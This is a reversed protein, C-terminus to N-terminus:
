HRARLVLLGAVIVLATGVAAGWFGIGIATEVGPFAARAQTIASQMDNYRTILLFALIGGGILPSGMNFHFRDPRAMAAGRALAFVGLLLIGWNHLDIGTQSVSLGLGSATFWPLFQSGIVLLAGVVTLTGARNQDAGVVPRPGTPAPAWPRAPLNPPEPLSGAPPDPEPPRQEDVFRM